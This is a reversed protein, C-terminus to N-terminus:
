VGTPRRLVDARDVSQMRLERLEGQRLVRMTVQTGAPGPRWLRRYFDAQDSVRESEVAVVIDGPQVGAQQAPSDPSVRTVLLHGRISETGIGFWPQVPGRRRGLAVLDDMIPKLLNVPVFLNGPIGRQHAAADNVILSGIGVLRGDETTLASGSWNNVPPFTYFPRELLYEWSGAFPRRSLVLLETAAAEGHGITLVKQREEVRDSDGLQLATGDLPLAARVLGFGSEHDYGAVSGPTRRGSATTIVVEDAELLLYGITLVLRDGVIVGSGSRHAGLNASSPAGQVARVELRVLSARLYESGPVTAPASRAPPPESPTAPSQAQLPGVGVVLMASLVALIARM